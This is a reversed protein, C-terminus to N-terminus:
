PVRSLRQGFMCLKAPACSVWLQIPRPGDGAQPYVPRLLECLGAGPVAPDMQALFVARRM